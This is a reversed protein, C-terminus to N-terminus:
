LPSSLIKELSPHIQEIGLVVMKLELNKNMINFAPDWTETTRLSDLEIATYYLEPVLIPYSKSKPYWERM